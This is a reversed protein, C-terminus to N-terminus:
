MSFTWDPFKSMVQSFESAKEFVSEITAISISVPNSEDAGLSNELTFSWIWPKDIRKGYTIKSYVFPKANWILNSTPVNGVSYTWGKGPTVYIMTLTTLQLSFEVDIHSSNRSFKLLEITTPQLTPPENGKLYRGDIFRYLPFGCYSLEKCKADEKYDSLDNPDFSMELTRLANRDITSLLYGIDTYTEEGSNYDIVTRKSHIVRFRQLKPDSRNDSYPFGISTLSIILSVLFTTIIMSYLIGRYQVLTTLPLFYSLCLVTWLTCILAITIDPNPYYAKGTIPIFLEWVQIMMYCLWLFLFSHGLLHIFIWSHFRTKPLVKCAGYIIIQTGFSVFLMVMTIYAFRYGLTTIALTIVAWFLNIGNLHIMLRRRKDESIKKESSFKKRIFQILFDVLQYTALQVLLALSGYVGISLFTVNFYSMTNDVANMIMAMLYCAVASLATYQVSEMTIYEISDYRTHYRWGGEVYAFDLGQTEGFDRFIEFDTIDKAWRHQTVFGHAAQLDEEESGNFLFIISNKQKHNSNALVRFIEIMVCCMVIDDSAGPSGPVSDFHCNMMMANDIEGQIRVVINQLNEYSASVFNHGSVVQTDVIIEDKLKSNNRIDNLTDFIYNFALIENADSGVVKPGFDNLTKLNMYAREAIFRDSNNEEQIIKLPKVDLRHLFYNSLVGLGVVFFAFFFSSIEQLLMKYKLCTILYQKSVNNKLEDIFDSLIVDFGTLSLFLKIMYYFFLAKCFRDLCYMIKLQIRAKPLTSLPEKLCYQRGGLMTDRLYDHEREKPITITDMYFIKQDEPEMQKYVSLFKTADFVWERTTFFTIVDLGQSIKQQVRRMFRKQGFLFMLGDILYAPGWHFLAVNLKHAFKNTTIDGGPYWLGAEFPYLENMKRGEMLVEGWPRKSGPNCTVNFVPIEKSKEKQTSVNMAIGILGNIAFDVPICEGCYEGNCLLTRLVGKAAAIMIGVPGNLNDVWGPLPEEFAPTVISPRVICVPLSNYEREVLIEALRKTYTYTNPHPGLLIESEDVVKALQEDSLGFNPHTIDGFVPVIKQLIEPKEENIRKFMRLIRLQVRSKPLTSLPEKLCFMRGGLICNKLYNEHDFKEVETPFIQNEDATLGERLFDFQEMRFDWKRMTFYQLMNMGMSIKKQIKVLFRKRGTLACFFDVVYAPLWQTFIVWIGIEFPYDLFIRRGEALLQAWTHRYREPVTINFVPIKEPKEKLIGIRRAVLLLGNIAYDVPVVEAHVTGDCLMSRIVGKGAGLIIGVPGNLNDVWGPLPENYVPVVIAPRVIVLPLNPYEDRVLIEAVRKTFTYTNPHPKIISDGLTDMAPQDMWECFSILKKPDVDWDYVQEHLVEQDVCCFATSLHLMVKLNPMQKAMDIIYQVSRVNMEIANKLPAEFNVTAAMHFIVNTEDIVRKLDSASLGFNVSCIDGYVPVLKNLSEPKEELLRHFLPLNSFEKVREPGSKGRKERMLIFIQKLDSCSYLLKELLVKGMFGSAGTVFISKEQFFERVSEMKISLVFQSHDCVIRSIPLLECFRIFCFKLQMRAKPLTSLPEKLCYQRGGLICNKLYENEEVEETNMNFIKQEEPSLKRYIEKFNNSRFDWQRTTFFQLVGLGVYIKKQVRIMFRPQFFILMLFDILLAPIWQCIFLTTYHKVVNMTINGNPYWLGAEFPYEYNIRKGTNLVTGWTMRKKESCTVNFVPINRPKQKMTAVTYAITILGSIAQDVPIVESTYEAECMMSRMVGKGGAVMIGIPGNLSDVWGPMPEKYTPTVISPRVICVPLNPFEDRVLIEALRKTYTYTNPHPEIIKQGMVNMAEETMWEACRILDMPKQPWDYVEEQLENQDCSCFATSLHVLTLLQPMNRCVEIVNKTGTLNMEVNPKLTAELKLSAALHFVPLQAFDQVRELGSKGRKPRMLIFIEKIDSCSYMLKELLVKGMFGSAGTIFLSKGKYFERVSEM